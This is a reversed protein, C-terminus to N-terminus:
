TKVSWDDQPGLFIIKQQREKTNRDLLNIQLGAMWSGKSAKTVFEVTMQVGRSM